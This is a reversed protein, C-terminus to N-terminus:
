AVYMIIEQLEFINGSVAYEPHQSKSKVRLNSEYNLSLIKCYQSVDSVIQCIKISKRIDHLSHVVGCPCIDLERSVRLTEDITQLVVEFHVTKFWGSKTLDNLNGVVSPFEPSMCINKSSKAVNDDAEIGYLM